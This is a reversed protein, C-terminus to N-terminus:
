LKEMMEYLYDVNTDIGEIITEGLASKMKRIAETRNKAHVILKALMNDYYPPVEYGSYIATDVRIGKGGPLYLETIVGPSPRFNKLPNEANIRCEISHGTLRIDEQKYSLARGSAIRIQEKILDIGTVWETVPHEVQIRTNMEMFYFDSDNELLFEITGANVYGAAKAAKVAEAGMSARLQESIAVCPAEEIFKQHNRQISCDREGLHVVNGENDALIQFEVHRPNQIFHEMYVSDDGFAAKAEKRASLYANELEEESFATRMGKGGGGLAAKVIVPYGVERAIEKAEEVSAIPQNWGPIVRVGAELMTNRAETKNGMRQIVKSSPGIFTINCQECLEAFKYNESLFGFGPHIAEAGSVITASIISEMNLYSDKSAAPGICIAEDALQAHLAERDAESYVAVTQIGMERCARIIRVAIEGRNAILIKRIM